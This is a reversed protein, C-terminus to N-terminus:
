ERDDDDSVDIPVAVLEVSDRFERCLSAFHEAAAKSAIAFEAEHREAASRLYYDRDKRVLETLEATVQAEIEDLKRQQEDTLQM